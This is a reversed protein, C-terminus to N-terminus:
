PLVEFHLGEKAVYQALKNILQLRDPDTPPIVRIEPPPAMGLPPPPGANMINCVKLRPYQSEYIGPVFPPPQAMPQQYMPPPAPFGPQPMPPHMGPHMMPPIPPGGQFSM